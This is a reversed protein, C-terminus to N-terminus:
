NKMELCVFRIVDSSPISYVDYYGKNHFLRWDVRFIDNKEFTAFTVTFGVNGVTTWREWLVTTSLDTLKRTGGLIAKRFHPNYTIKM